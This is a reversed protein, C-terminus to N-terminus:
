RLYYNFKKKNNINLDFNLKLNYIKKSLKASLINNFIRFYYLFRGYRLGRFEVICFGSIIKSVWTYPKSRGKGMRSGKSKKILPISVRFNIWFKRSTKEARKTIRKIFILYRNMVRATITTLRLIKIGYQGYVLNNNIYHNKFKNKFTKEFKVKKPRLLM